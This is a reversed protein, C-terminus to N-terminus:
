HSWSEEPKLGLYAYEVSSRGSPVFMVFVSCCLLLANRSALVRLNKKKKKVRWDKARTSVISRIWSIRWRQVCTISTYPLTVQYKLSCFLSLIQWFSYDRDLKKITEFRSSSKITLLIHVTRTEVLKIDGDSAALVYILPWQQMYFLSLSWKWGYNAM